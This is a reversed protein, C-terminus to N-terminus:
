GLYQSIKIIDSFIGYATYEAGAGKGKITLPIPSHYTTKISVINEVGKLEFFPHESDVAEIGVSAKGDEYKAVYRLVKGNSKAESLLKNFYDDKSKLIKFFEDISETERAEEPVLNQINIDDLEFEFGAERILILLKRAMDLGNLDDRPDPETFGQKHAERVIQSFLKQGNFSNFIYSLTGSLVGEIREIKDGSAVAGQIFSIIPLGAGVNTSYQFQVNHKKATKRLEVYESYSKTNAVKNPTAISISSSLINTYFPTVVDSSTCDIFITNALNLNIMKSVFSQIDASQGSNELQYNWNDLDIGYEDFVMKKSNILGILNLKTHFHENIYKKQKSLYKILSGGVMGPGVLFLNLEKKESLFMADHLVNLAKPLEKNRIIFSINLESSGQAIAIINIGNRGLSNFVKGAVGPTHRMDEGVVATLALEREPEIKNVAGDFIELRLEQEISSKACEEDEPLIALCISLGSSGQTIMLIPINQNALTEFIRATVKKNGVLGSGEIRLLTVNDISSIGKASFRVDTEKPLIITGKFEPNFTNRIRIKINKNLAPQMTPPYIVKAGFYSMEMAENYTVAKLPLADKVKRPDSTLIGDVDTWIELEEADVAAALLSATYDSGGRGLTTIEGSVTSGIFGTIIKIGNRAEFLKQINKNTLEFLVTANTFNNDTKIIDSGEIYVAAIGKQNLIESIISCSLREGFSLILDKIRLTLDNLIFVSDIIRKLHNFLEDIRGALKKYNGKDSLEEAISLHKKHLERLKVLYNDDGNVALTFINILEDTVSQFASSVVVVELNKNYYNSIIKIVQNIRDANGVSSGGFKLVKM